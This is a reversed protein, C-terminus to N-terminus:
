GKFQELTQTTMDLMMSINSAVQKLNNVNVRYKDLAESIEVSTGTLNIISNSTNAFSESIENMGIFIEQINQDVFVMENSTDISTQAIVSLDKEQVKISDNISVINDRMNAVVNSVEKIVDVSEYSSQQIQEIKIAIDEAAKGSQKALEKIEKAVVAFGLGASGASAAEITANLALLNTQEAIKKITETFKGIESAVIGLEDMSKSAKDTFNKASNSIEQTENISTSVTDIQSSFSDISESMSLIKSSINKSSDSVTKTNVSIEEIAASFTGMNGAMEQSSDSVGRSQNAIQEAAAAVETSIDNVDSSTQSLMVLNMDIESIANSTSDLTNNIGDKLEAFIGLYDGDLRSSMNNNKIADFVQQAEQFETFVVKSLTDIDKALNAWFGLLNDAEIKKGFEGVSMSKITNVVSKDIISIVSIMTNLNEYVFAFEGHLNPDKKKPIKGMSMEVIALNLANLSKNLLKSIDTVDDLINEIRYGKTNDEIEGKNLLEKKITTVKSSINKFFEDMLKKRIFILVSTLVVILLINIISYLYGSIIFYLVTSLILYFGIFGLTIFNIQQSLQFGLFRELFKGVM